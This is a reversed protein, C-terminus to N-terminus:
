AKNVIKSALLYNNAIERIDELYIDLKRLSQILQALRNTFPNQSGEVGWVYGFGDEILDLVIKKLDEETNQYPNPIRRLTAQQEASLNSSIFDSIAMKPSSIKEPDNARTFRSQLVTQAFLISLTIELDLKLQHFNRIETRAQPTTDLESIARSLYDWPKPLPPKEIAQKVFMEPVDEALVVESAPTKQIPDQRKAMRKKKDLREEKKKREIEIREESLVVSYEEVRGKKGAHGLISLGTSAYRQRLSSLVVSLRHDVEWGTDGYMARTLGQITSVNEHLLDSLQRELPILIKLIKLRREEITQKRVDAIDQKRHSIQVEKGKM